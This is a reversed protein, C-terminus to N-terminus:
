LNKAIHVTVGSKELFQVSKQSIGNDTIVMNVDAPMFQSAVGISSFKSSDTLICVKGAREAMARAVEARMLNVCTFGAHESFGDVGIFVKDVNFQSLCLRALPGVMVEAEHQYDGGILVIKVNACDRIYRAIFSSNTIITIDKKNTLEKALLANTSGSEIMVTEGDAILAAAAKAIELKTSYNVSMRKMIDDNSIAKAGGHYRKLMGSLELNKLDSRITVQSVGFEEALQKVNIDIGNTAKDLISLQRKNM